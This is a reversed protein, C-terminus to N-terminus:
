VVLEFAVDGAVIGFSPVAVFGAVWWPNPSFGLGLLAIGGLGWVMSMFTIPRRRSGWRPVVLAGVLGGLGGLAFVLGLDVASGHMVRRVLVPTLVGVIGVAAFNFLSVPGLSRWMWKQRRCYALGKRIQSIMAENVEKRRPTAAMLLLCVSSVVFTGADFAFSGSIGIAAVVVGGLAPGVLSTGFQQSTMSLSSASVLLDAEVIDPIIANSAPQFFADGIGFIVSLVILQWEAAQHTAVLYAIAGVAGGRLVDAALMVIRRSLRDGVVGGVLVLLVAPLTRAALIYALGSASHTLDIAEIALAITFVGDGIQSVAQGSWLLAFQRSSLAPAISRM